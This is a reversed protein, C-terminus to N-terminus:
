VRGFEGCQIGRGHIWASGVCMSLRPPSQDDVDKLAGCCGHRGRFWHQSARSVSHHQRTITNQQRQLEGREMLFACIVCDVAVKFVCFDNCGPTHM